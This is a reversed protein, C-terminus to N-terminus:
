CRHQSRDQATGASRRRPDREQRDCVREDRAAAFNRARSRRVGAWRATGETQHGRGAVISVQPSTQRGGSASTPRTLFCVPRAEHSHRTARLAPARSHLSSVRLSSTPGENRFGLLVPRFTRSVTVDWGLRELRRELRSPEHPVKVIQYETGDNLRRRIVESSEGNILEDPTRYSDDAFFM